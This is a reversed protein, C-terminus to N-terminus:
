WWTEIQVGAAFGRSRGGYLVPAVLGVFGDSWSAWTVYARLSPRSLAAVKPTIQPALTVKFLSGSTREAQDTWDWGAELELSFYRTFYYAPRLGASLWTIRGGEPAGNELEQWVTGLQITLPGARDLLLDEVVRLQWVDGYDVTDGVAFSRGPIATLVSRFDFAAGTGYQVSLKNRGAALPREHVLAAAWGTNGRVVLEGDGFGLTDGNFSAVDLALAAKGGLLPLAYLRLDFTNKSLQFSGPPPPTGNSGLENLSGGLWALGLRAAGVRVGEIGGGFGSLDRYFFDSMHMDHRDFFRQGAWFTADEQAKWVGSALVFAERLATTTEFSNTNSTPTVYSVTVRTDFLARADDEPRLGYAFTTEVYAETENGLRYKAGANPARFAEQPDGTGAVGFGSRLYGHFRFGEEDEAPVPEGALALLWVAGVCLRKTIPVSL